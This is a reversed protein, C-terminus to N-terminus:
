VYKAMRKKVLEDIFKEPEALEDMRLFKQIKTTDLKIKNKDESEFLIPSDKDIISIVPLIKGNSHKEISKKIIEALELINIPNPYALNIIHDLSSSQIKEKTLILEIFSKFAKCVDNITIFLMPRYMSHKFPTIEKGNLAQNIFLNAAIENRMNEALVTGLRIAGFYTRPYMEDFFRIICEQAIKSITYLRARNEVKDPRYGFSENITGGLGQEGFVHWSSTLILGKINPNRAVVECVNQTGLINIRYSGYKNENIKLIDIVATHIVIAPNGISDYLKKEDTIDCIKHPINYEVIDETQPNIDFTTVSYFKTLYKALHSGVFGCGIIAIDYDSM